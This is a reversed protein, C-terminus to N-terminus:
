SVKVTGTSIVSISVLPPTDCIVCTERQPKYLLVFSKLKSTEFM